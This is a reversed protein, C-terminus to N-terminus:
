RNIVIKSVGNHTFKIPTGNKTCISRAGRDEMDLSVFMGHTDVILSTPIDPEESHGVDVNTRSSSPNNTAGYWSARVEGLKANTKDYVPHTVKGDGVTVWLSPKIYMVEPEIQEPTGGYDFEFDPLRRVLTFYCTPSKEELTPMSPYTARVRLEAKSGMLTLDQTLEGGNITYGLDRVTTGVVSWTGDSRKREWYFTVNNTLESMGQMLLARITLTQGDRWPNWVFEEPCDISLTAPSSTAQTSQVPFSMHVTFTQETRTDLFQGEFELAVQAGTQYNKKVYLRGINETTDITYGTNSATILTRTVSGNNATGTVEYWKINTLQNTYDGDEIVESPDHVSLRPQLILPVLEYDPTYEDLDANYSQISPVSGIVEIHHLFELPRYNFTFLRTEM